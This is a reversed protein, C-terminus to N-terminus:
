AGRQLRVCSMCVSTAVSTSLLCDFGVLMPLVQPSLSSAFPCAASTTDRMGGWNLTDILSAAMTRFPERRADGGAEDLAQTLYRLSHELSAMQV